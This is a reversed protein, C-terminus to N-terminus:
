NPVNLAKLGKLKNQCILMKMKMDYNKFPDQWMNYTVDENAKKKRKLYLWLYKQNAHLHLCFLNQLQVMFRTITNPATIATKRHTNMLEPYPFSCIKPHQCQNTIGRVIYFLNLSLKYWTNVLTCGPLNNLNVDGRL